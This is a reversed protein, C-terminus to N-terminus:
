TKTWERIPFYNQSLKWCKERHYVTLMQKWSYANFDLGVKICTNYVRGSTVTCDVFALVRIYYNQLTNEVCKQQPFNITKTCAINQQWVQKM